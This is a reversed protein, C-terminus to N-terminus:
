EEKELSLLDGLFLYTYILYREAEFRTVKDHTGKCAANNLADIKNGIDSLEAGVISNYTKSDSKSDIYQILRNIYQDEGLKIEKTGVKIAKDTPPYLNDAVEKLIRRCSHIANAWDEENSSSINDYISSLKKIAEPCYNMLKSDVINRNKRFIDEVLNGYLLENYIKLVYDYIKLKIIEIRKSNDKISVAINNREKTHKSVEIMYPNFGEGYSTPDALVKMRESQIENSSEMESITATFAYEDYNGDKDKEFHRRGSLLCLEWSESTLKGKDNIPYGTAEYTFLKVGTEDNLLRCLRLCKLIISKFPLESLEINKLIEEALVTCEQKKDKM